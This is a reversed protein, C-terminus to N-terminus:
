KLEDLIERPIKKVQLWKTSGTPGSVYGTWGRGENWQISRWRYGPLIDGTEEIHKFDDIVSM